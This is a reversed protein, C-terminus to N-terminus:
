SEKKWLDSITLTDKGRASKIRLDNEYSLALLKLSSVVVQERTAEDKQLHTTLEDIQKTITRGFKIQFVGEEKPTFLEGKQDPQM